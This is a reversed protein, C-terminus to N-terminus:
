SVSNPFFRSLSWQRDAGQPGAPAGQSVPGLEHGSGAFPRLHKSPFHWQFVPLYFSPTSKPTTIPYPLNKNIPTFALHEFSMGDLQHQTTLPTKPLLDSLSFFGHTIGLLKSSKPMNKHRFGGCSRNSHTGSGELVEDAIQGAVRRFRM